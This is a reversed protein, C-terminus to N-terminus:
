FIGTVARSIGGAAGVVPAGFTNHLKALKRLKGQVSAEFGDYKVVDGLYYNGSQSLVVERWVGQELQYAYIGEVGDEEKTLKQIVVRRSQGLKNKAEVVLDKKMNEFLSQQNEPVVYSYVRPSVEFVKSKQEKEEVYLTLFGERDMYQYIMKEM